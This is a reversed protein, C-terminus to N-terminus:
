EPLPLLLRLSVKRVPEGVLAIKFLSECKDSLKCFPYALLEVVFLTMLFWYIGSLFQNVFGYQGTVMGLFANIINYDIGILLSLVYYSVIFLSGFALYPIMLRKFRAVTWKLFKTNKRSGSVFGILFFFLPMHFALLYKQGTIECYQMIVLLM